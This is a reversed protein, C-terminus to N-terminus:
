RGGGADAEARVDLMLQIMANDTYTWGEPMEWM